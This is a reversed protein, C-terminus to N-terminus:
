YGVYVASNLDSVACFQEGTAGGQCKISGLNNGTPSPTRGFPVGACINIDTSISCGLLDDDGYAVVLSISYFKALSSNAIDFVALRMNPSLLEKVGFSPSQSGLKVYPPTCVGSTDSCPPACSSSSSLLDELLGYNGTDADHNVSLNDVKHNLRFTYRANGVCYYYYGQTHSLLSVNDATRFHGTVDQMIQSATTQTQTISVGKYFLKGIHIFGALATVLVISFVTTAILLEVITFGAQHNKNIQKM